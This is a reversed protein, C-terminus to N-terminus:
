DLEWPVTSSFMRKTRSPASVLHDMIQRFRMGRTEKIQEEVEARRMAREAALGGAGGLGAGGKSQASGQKLNEGSPPLMRSEPINSISDLPQLVADQSEMREQGGEKKFKPKSHLDLPLGGRAAHAPTRSCTCCCGFFSFRSESIPDQLWWTHLQGLGIPVITHMHM